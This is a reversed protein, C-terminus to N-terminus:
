AEALVVDEYSKYSGPSMFRLLRERDVVLSRGLFQGLETLFHDGNMVAKEYSV